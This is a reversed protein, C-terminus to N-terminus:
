LIDAYKEELKVISAQGNTINIIHETFSEEQELDVLIEIKVASGFTSDVVKVVFDSLAYEVKGYLSYDVDIQLLACYCMYMKKASDVAIKAAHSYARVLGGGGLMIGGFYRTVVCCVDILGEKQLIDLVPVGATGQPEGDDSYRTANGERLLYAYVNHTAKRHKERISNIFAIAEDETTAPSIYGIFESRREIFSDSSPSKITLYKIQMM